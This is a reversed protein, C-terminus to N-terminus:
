GKWRAAMYYTERNTMPIILIKRVQNIHFHDEADGSTIQYSIMANVGVDGDHATVNGVLIGTDNTEVISFSVESKPFVPSHDNIDTITIDITAQVHFHISLYIYM